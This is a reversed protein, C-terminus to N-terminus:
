ILQNLKIERNMRIQIGEASESPDKEIGLNKLRIQIKILNYAQHSLIMNSSIFEVQILEKSLTNGTKEYLELLIYGIDNLYDKTNYGKFSKEDFSFSIEIYSSFSGDSNKESILNINQDYINEHIILNPSILVIDFLNQYVPSILKSAKMNLNLPLPM